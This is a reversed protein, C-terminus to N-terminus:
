GRATLAAIDGGLTARFAGLLEEVEGLQDGVQHTNEASLERNGSRAILEDIRHDLGTAWRMSAVARLQSEAHALLDGIRALAAVREVLQDWVPELAARRSAVHERAEPTSSLAGDLEGVIGHLAVTDVAIQTLEDALDLQARQISFHESHWAGSGEIRDYLTGALFLLTDYRDVFRDDDSIAARELAEAVRHGADRARSRDSIRAVRVAAGELLANRVDHLHQRQVSVPAPTRTLADFLADRQDLDLHVGDRRDRRIARVGSAYHAGSMTMTSRLAGLRKGLEGARYRYALQVPGPRLAGARDVTRSHEDALRRLEGFGGISPFARGARRRASLIERTAPDVRGAAILLAAADSLDPHRGDLRARECWHRVQETIRSRREAAGAFADSAPM